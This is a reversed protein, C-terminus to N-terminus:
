ADGGPRWDLLWTMRFSAQSYLIAVQGPASQAELLQVGLAGTQERWMPALLAGHPGPQGDPGAVSGDEDLHHNGARGAAMCALPSAAGGREASFCTALVPLIPNLSRAIEIANGLNYIEMADVVPALQGYDYGGWGPVQAGELAALAEPDGRHIAKTGAYPEPLHSM